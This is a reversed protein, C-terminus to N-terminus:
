WCSTVSKVKGAINLCVLRTDADGNGGGDNAAAAVVLWQSSKDPKVSALSDPALM